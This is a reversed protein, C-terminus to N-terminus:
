RSVPVAGPVLSLVSKLYELDRESFEGSSMGNDFYALVLVEGESDICAACLCSRVKNMAISGSPRLREDQESDFCIFSRGQELVADVAQRSFPFSKRLEEDGRYVFANERELWMCGREAFIEEMLHDLVQGYAEVSPTELLKRFFDIEFEEEQM